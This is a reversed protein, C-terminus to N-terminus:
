TSSYSGKLGTTFKDNKVGELVIVRDEINDLREKTKELVKRIEKSQYWIMSLLLCQILGHGPDVKAFDIVQSFDFM